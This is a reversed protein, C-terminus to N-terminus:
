QGRTDPPSERRWVGLVSRGFCRRTLPDIRVALPVLLGDWLAIDRASPLARRLLVRNALSLVAGASDLYDLSVPVLGPPALPGLTSRTYRRHHGLAADFASFLWRHAPALVALVGGPRLRLAAERVEGADDAIHELVDLYLIADFAPAPRTAALTGCLVNWRPDGSEDRRTRLRAALAPDPELSLLSRVGDGLLFPANAGLGAGVEAVRGRLHPRLLGSWYRKWNRAAAFLDLEGGAYV